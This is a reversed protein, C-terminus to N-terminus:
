LSSLWSSDGARPSNPTDVSGVTHCSDCLTYPPAPSCGLAERHTGHGIQPIRPLQILSGTGKPTLFPEPFGEKDDTEGDLIKVYGDGNTTKHLPSCGQAYTKLVAARM